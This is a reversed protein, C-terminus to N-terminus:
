EAKYYMNKELRSIKQGRDKEQHYKELGKAIVDQFAATEKEQEEPIIQEAVKKSLLKLIRKMVKEESPDVPNLLISAKLVGMMPIVEIFYIKGAELEAEVFDKNESRGWFLHSGPTCEYRVYNTGSLKAIVIASDFYTFNIAFGISSTRAFYVVAKDAPAAPIEQCLTTSSIMFLLVLITLLKKM